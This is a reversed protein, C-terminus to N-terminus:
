RCDEIEAAPVPGPAVQEIRVLNDVATGLAPAFRTVWTSGHETVERIAWTEYAENGLWFEMDPGIVLYAGDPHTNGAALPWMEGMGQEFPHWGAECPWPTIGYHVHLLIPESGAIDSREIAFYGDEEALVVTRTTTVMGDVGYEEFTFRTGPEPATYNGAFVPAASLACAAALLHIRM